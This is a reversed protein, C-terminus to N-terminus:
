RPRHYDFGLVMERIPAIQEEVVQRHAPHPGYAKLADEDTFQAVLGHTYGQARGSFDEGCSLDLIGPIVEKLRRLGKMVQEIQESTAEEKWRFLVIHEVMIKGELTSM